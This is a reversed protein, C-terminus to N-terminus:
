TSITIENTISETMFYFHWNIIAVFKSFHWIHFQTVLRYLKTSLNTQMDARRCINQQIKYIEFQIASNHSLIHISLFLSIQLKFVLSIIFNETFYQIFNFPMENSHFSKWIEICIIHDFQNSNNTFLNHMRYYILNKKCSNKFLIWIRTASSRQEINITFNM